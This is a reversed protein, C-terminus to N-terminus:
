TLNRKEVKKRGNKSFINDLVEKYLFGRERLQSEVFYYKWM